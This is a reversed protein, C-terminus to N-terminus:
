HHSARSLGISRAFELAERYEQATIRRSIEFYEGAKYCPHYQAMINVFADHSIEDRIFQLVNRTDEGCSPMVLHRILLGRQAIGSPDILLDGVQRQMERVVAKVVEPYNEARCFRRSLAGDLFKIDPMYIDVIGELSKITELSEYGGCNYVIPISLGRDIAVSLSRMIQPVYHTPTVLNINHCGRAELEVMLTALRGYSCPSGDGLISIDYNQCFSCKLNCHTLFITGSGNTGVLPSEEGFHPSVSSVYLDYPAKCYGSEGVARNVRCQRPCLTCPNLRSELEEIKQDLLGEAKTRRYAPFNEM